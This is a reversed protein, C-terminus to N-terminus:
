LQDSITRHGVTIVRVPTVYSLDTSKLPLLRNASRFIQLTEETFINLYHKAYDVMEDWESQLAATDIGAQQLPYQFRQSLYLLAPYGFSANDDRSWGQTALVKLAHQLLEIEQETMCQKLCSQVLDINGQYHNEFYQM